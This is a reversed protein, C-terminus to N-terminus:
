RCGHGCCFSGPRKGGLCAGAYPGILVIFDLPAVALLVIQRGPNLMHVYVRASRGLHGKLLLAVAVGRTSSSSEVSDMRQVYAKCICSLRSNQVQLHRFGTAVM